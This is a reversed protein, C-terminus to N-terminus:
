VRGFSPNHLPNQGSIFKYIWGIGNELLHNQGFKREASEAHAAKELAALGMSPIAEPLPRLGYRDGLLVLFNPKPSNEQARWVECGKPKLDKALREALAAAARRGYRLFLKVPGPSETPKATPGPYRLGVGRIDEALEEFLLRERVQILLEQRGGLLARIESNEAKGQRRLLTHVANRSEEPNM